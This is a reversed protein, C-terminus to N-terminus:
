RPVFNFSRNFYLLSTADESGLIADRVQAFFVGHTGIQSMESLECDLVAVAGSIYPIGADTRDWSTSNVDYPALGNEVPRGAFCNAIDTQKSNLLSISFNANEKRGLRAHLLSKRHLCVLMTPPEATVSVASSVTQAVIGDKNEHAVVTVPAPFLALSAFFQLPTTGEKAVEVSEVTKAKSNM